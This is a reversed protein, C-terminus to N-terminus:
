SANPSANIVFFTPLRARRLPQEILLTGVQEFYNQLAAEHARQTELERTEQARRDDLASNVMQTTFVGGLGVLAGILAANDSVAKAGSSLLLTLVLAVTVVITAAIGIGTL